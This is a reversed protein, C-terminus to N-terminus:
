PGSQTYDGLDLIYCCGDQRLGIIDSGNATIQVVDSWEGLAEMVSSETNKPSENAHGAAAYLVKGKDTLGM